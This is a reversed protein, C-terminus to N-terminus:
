RRAIGSGALSPLRRYPALKTKPPHATEWAAGMQLAQGPEHRLGLQSRDGSRRSRSEPDPGVFPKRWRKKSIEV